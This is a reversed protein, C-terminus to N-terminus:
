NNCFLKTDDVYQSLKLDEKQNPILSEVNKENM